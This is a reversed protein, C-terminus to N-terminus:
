NQVNTKKKKREQKKEIKDLRKRKKTEIISLVRKLELMNHAINYLYQRETHYSYTSRFISSDLFKTKNLVSPNFKIEHKPKNRQLVINWSYDSECLDELNVFMMQHIDIRDICDWKNCDIDGCVTIPVYWVLLLGTNQHKELQNYTAISGLKISNGGHINSCNEQRGIKRISKIELRYKCATCYIDEFPQFTPNHVLTDSTNCSPCAMMTFVKEFLISIVQGCRVDWYTRDLEFILKNKGNEFVNFKIKTRLEGCSSM